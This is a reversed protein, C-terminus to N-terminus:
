RGFVYGADRALCSLRWAPSGAPRYYLRWGDLDEGAVQLARVAARWSGWERVRGRRDTMLVGGSDERVARFRDGARSGNVGPMRAATM